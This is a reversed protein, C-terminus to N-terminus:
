KKGPIERLALYLITLSVFWYVFYSSIVNIKLLTMMTLFTLSLTISYASIVWLRRYPLHKSILRCISLGFLAFLSIEVFKISAALLFTTIIFLIIIIPLVDEVSNLFDLLNEKTITLDSLLDYPISQVYGNSYYAFEDLFFGYSKDYDELDDASLKGTSDFLIITDGYEYKEPVTISSTLKGQDITFDPLTSLAIENISGVVETIEKSGYIASPVISLLSLFFVYLITKGISQFRLKVIDKPSYLSKYWQKFLNM